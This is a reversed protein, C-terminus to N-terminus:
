FIEDELQHTVRSCIIQLTPGHYPCAHHFLTKSAKTTDYWHLSTCQQNIM